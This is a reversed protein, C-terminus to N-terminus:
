VPAVVRIASAEVTLTLPAEGGPDGDVQFPVRENGQPLIEVERGQAYILDRREAFGPRYAALALRALRPVTLASFLCVDLLGDDLKARPTLALVGASYRCNGVIAYEADDSLRVGDVTVRMKPFNYRWLVRLVPRVYSAYSLSKGRTRHVEEVVAADLGAGVGLLFRRAGYRGADVSRTAGDAILQAVHAPDRPIGLERAVVNATGLPLIALRADPDRLGNAVENVSGDGGV